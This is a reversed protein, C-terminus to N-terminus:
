RVEKREEARLTEHHEPFKDWIIIKLPTSLESYFEWLAASDGALAAFKDLLEKLGNTGSM